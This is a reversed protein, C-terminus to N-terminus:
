SGLTEGDNFMYYDIKWKDEIKRLVFLEKNNSPVAKKGELMTLTGSGQSEVLAMDGHVSVRHYVHATNLKAAGFLARYAKGIADIGRAAPGSKPLFVSDKHYLDLITDADSENLAKFYSVVVQKVQSSDMSDQASAGGRPASLLLVGLIAFVGLMARHLM